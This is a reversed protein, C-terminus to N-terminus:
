FSCACVRRKDKSTMEFM